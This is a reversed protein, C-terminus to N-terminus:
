YKWWRLGIATDSHFSNLRILKLHLDDLFILKPLICSLQPTPILETVTVLLSAYINLRQVTPNHKIENENHKDAWLRWCPLNQHLEQKEPINEKSQCDGTRWLVSQAITLTHAPTVFQCKNTKENIYIDTAILKSNM